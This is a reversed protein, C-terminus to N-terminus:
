KVFNKNKKSEWKNNFDQNGKKASNSYSKSMQM